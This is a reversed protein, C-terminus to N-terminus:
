IGSEYMASSGPAPSGVDSHGSRLSHRAARTSDSQLSAVGRAAATYRENWSTSAFFVAALASGIEGTARVEADSSPTKFCASLPVGPLEIIDPTIGAPRPFTPPGMCCCYVVCRAPLLPVCGDATFVGDISRCGNMRPTRTLSSYFPVHGTATFANFLEAKSTFNYALRARAGCSGIESYALAFRGHLRRMLEEEPMTAIMDLIIQGTIDNVRFAVGLRHSRAKSAANCLFIRLQEVPFEMALALAYCAGSSVGVFHWGNLVDAPYHAQLYEVVGLYMGGRWAGGNFSICVDAVGTANPSSRISDLTAQVSFAEVRM